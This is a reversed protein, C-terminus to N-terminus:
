NTGEVPAGFETAPKAQKRVGFNYRLKLGLKRTDNIRSGTANVNGQNLAFSVQNTRFVDNVSLIINAKRNLIAKNVSVVLGGFNQLEYFNQLGKTRMFGQLNVIITKGAKLEQFMFFTWSGRQYQLPAGQYFGDYKNYNHQAGVYFFYKGGPPIGAILKFYFETNKGLNDYTRFAIKTVEDQYTVNSFIDTTKNVGVAFVPFDDFSANFEYNTTFQPKLSPNGTEFLYQDIYKQYPNLTEYYPRRISKRYIASGIVDTKFITFLKHKLFVYPFLDRRKISFSTDGPVTQQGNINTSEFRLGPKITFGNFTKALQLYAASINEKYAFTNTQFSDLKPSGAGVTTFYLAANDSNSITTKVGAELTYKKPLKFVLDSQAVFINKTNTNDGNGFLSPRAPLFYQNNYTQYNTFRYHNYNIEATLESGASDIKYKSSIANGYYAANNNNAITSRNNAFVSTLDITSILSNNTAASSSNTLSANADYAISIKKHIQYDIGGGIYNNVGPFNTFAEQAVLTADTAIIRNSILQEFNNRDTFQYSFYTNLKGNSNNLSFGASSTGYVGQFYSANVSGNLGIKVGKKLVINVIGGSSAADYKASPSRLVEIHSVSGAPLSKLLSAVDANSLKMERGNIFITAPTTSSLYVNGDQDIVAGPTKELIEFANTSSNALPEADIITKDDEQRVLPKRSVVTVDQLSTVSYQMSFIVTVPSSKVAIIKTLTKFGVSSLTLTYSANREVNIITSADKIVFSGKASSDGVTSLLLTGSTFNNNASATVLVTVAVDQAIGPRVYFICFAIMLHQFRLSLLVHKGVIHM